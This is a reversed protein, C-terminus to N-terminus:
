GALDTDADAKGLRAMEAEYQAVVGAAAGDQRIKGAELWIVRDYGRLIAPDHTITILRQELGSLERLLRAQTPIDLGAFPEDLLITA